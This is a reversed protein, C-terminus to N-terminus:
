GQELEGVGFAPGLRPRHRQELHRTPEVHGELQRWGIHGRPPPPQHVTEDGRQHRAEPRRAPPSARRVLRRGVVRLRTFLERQTAPHCRQAQASLEARHCLVAAVAHQKELHALPQPGAAHLPALHAGVVGGDIRAGLGTVVRQLHNAGKTHRCHADRPLRASACAM